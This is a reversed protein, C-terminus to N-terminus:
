LWIYEEVINISPNLSLSVPCNRGVKELYERKDEPIGKPMEIKITLKSVKRPDAQMEKTGSFKAGKIDISLNNKEIAIAMTTLICSGLAACLLDTPSFAEGKGKNDKPADTNIHTNSPGHTLECRKEGTYIGSMNV